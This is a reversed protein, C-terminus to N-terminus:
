LMAASVELQFLHFSLEMSFTFSDKKVATFETKMTKKTELYLICEQNIARSLQM